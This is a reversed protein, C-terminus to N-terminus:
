GKEPDFPAARNELKWEKEAESNPRPPRISDIMWLERPTEGVHLEYHYGRDRVFPAIAADAKKLWGATWESDNSIHRAFHDLRIRVFDDRAVAGMYFSEKPQEHFLIGVYFRPITYIDTIRTAMEQKDEATYAGVPHYINWLPM